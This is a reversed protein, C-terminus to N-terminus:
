EATYVEQKELKVSIERAKVFKLYERTSEASVSLTVQLTEGAELPESHAYDRRWIVAGSADRFVLVGNFAFLRRPSSNALELYLKVGMKDKALVQKKKIFSATIPEAPMPEAAQAAPRGELKSVRKEVSTLRKEVANLRKEPVTQCFAPAAALLAIILAKRM